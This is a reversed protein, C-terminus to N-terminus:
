SHLYGVLYLLGVIPLVASWIVLGAGVVLLVLATKLKKMSGGPEAHTQFVHVDCQKWVVANLQRKYLFGVSLAGPERSGNPM